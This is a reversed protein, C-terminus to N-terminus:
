PEFMAPVIYTVVMPPSSDFPLTCPQYECSPVMYIKSSRTVSVKTKSRCQWLLLHPCLLTFAYLAQNLECNQMIKIKFKQLNITSM